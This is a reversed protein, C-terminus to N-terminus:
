CVDVSLKAGKRQADKSPNSGPVFKEPLSPAKSALTEAQYFGHGNLWQDAVSEM